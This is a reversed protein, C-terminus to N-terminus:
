EIVDSLIDDSDNDEEIELKSISIEYATKTIIEEDNIRKQYDRSQIRGWLKLHTGM